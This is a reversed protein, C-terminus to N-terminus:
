CKLTRSMTGNSLIECSELYTRVRLISVFGISFGFSSELDDMFTHPDGWLVGISMFAKTGTKASAGSARQRSIEIAHDLDILNGLLSPNSRDSNIMLNNMSIDRHLIGVDYLAKHGAVCQAFSELLVPLSESQFISKGVDQMIIRQHVRNQPTPHNQEIPSEIRQRKSPPDAADISRENSRKGVLLWRIPLGSQIQAPPSRCAFPKGKRIDLGGRINELIDDPRNNVEVTWGHIYRAVNTVEKETAFRLLAAEDREVPQWSEKLIMSEEEEGKFHARRCTTGRTVIGSSCLMVDDLILHKKQGGIDVEIYRKNESFQITPDFGLGEKDVLLFALIVVVFQLGDQNIDLQASGIAGARDFNWIRMISGCLTFGLVFRRSVQANFVERIYRALDLWPGPGDDGANMELEGPVILQSLDVSSSTAAADTTKQLWALVNGESTDEPWDRWGQHFLPEDGESCEKFLAEALEKLGAVSGFFTNYIDLDVWFPGLEAQLLPDMHKRYESSNVVSTSFRTPTDVVSSATKPPPTRETVAEYVKNWIDVDPKHELIAILLPKCDLDLDDTIAIYFRAIDDKDLRDVASSDSPIGQERCLSAFFTHFRDLGNSIPHEKIAVFRADDM